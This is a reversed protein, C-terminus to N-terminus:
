RTSDAYSELEVSEDEGFYKAIEESVNSEGEVDEDLPIEDHFYGEADVLREAVEIRTGIEDILEKTRALHSDDFNFESTTQAVEVMKQRAELNEIDVELQRKAALMSELKEHAAELGKKRAGLISHLKAITADQTKFREFRNSMDEEVQSATYRHGAYEFTSKGTDLDAKLRMLEARNKELKTEAQKAQKELREVEVEEKAILQMNRRIEPKLDEIMDRAREIEFEVPVSERVSDHVRSVTTGLYSLADRGFFLVALLVVGAGVILGKKLM